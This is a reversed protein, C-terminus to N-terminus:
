KTKTDVKKQASKKKLDSKFGRTKPRTVRRIKRDVLEDIAERRAKRRAINTLLVSYRELLSLAETPEIDPVEPSDKLGNSYLRWWCRSESLKCVLINSFGMMYLHGHDKAAHVKGTPYGELYKILRAIRYSVDQTKRKIEDM